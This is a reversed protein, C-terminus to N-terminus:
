VELKAKERYKVIAEHLWTMDPSAVENLALLIKYAENDTGETSTYKFGILLAQRILTENM